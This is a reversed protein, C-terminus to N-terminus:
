SASPRSYRSMAALMATLASPWASGSRTAAM